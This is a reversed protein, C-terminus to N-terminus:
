ESGFFRQCKRAWRDWTSLTEDFRGEVMMRYAGVQKQAVLEAVTPVFVKTVILPLVSAQHSPRLGHDKMMTAAYRWVAKFNAETHKPTGFKVKCADFVRRSYTIRNNMNVLARTNRAELPKTSKVIREPGVSPPTDCSEAGADEGTTASTAVQDCDGPQATDQDLNELGWNLPQPCAVVGDHLTSNDLPIDTLCEEALRDDWVAALFDVADEAPQEEDYHSKVMYLVGAAVAVVAGGKVISPLARKVHHRVTSGAVAAVVAATPLGLGFRDFSARAKDAMQVTQVIERVSTLALHFM